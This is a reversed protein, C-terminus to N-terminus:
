RPRRAPLTQRHGGGGYAVDPGDLLLGIPFLATTSDTGWSGLNVRQTRSLSAGFPLAKRCDAHILTFGPLVVDQPGSPQVALIYETDAQLTQVAWYGVMGVISGASPTLDEDFTFSRLLTTDSYLAVIGECNNTLGGSFAGGICSATFPLKFKIGYEDPNDNAAFTLDAGAAAPFLGPTPLAGGDSYEVYLCPVRNFKAWGAGSDWLAVHSESMPIRTGSAEDMAAIELNGAVFSDFEFVVAVLDGPSVTKGTTFTELYGTNSTLSGRTVSDDATGDPQGSLNVDQLSVKITDSTTVTHTAWGVKKITASRHAQFLYAVREGSADMVFLSDIMLAGSANSWLRSNGIEVGIAYLLGGPSARVTM